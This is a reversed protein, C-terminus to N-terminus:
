QLNTILEAQISDKKIVKAFDEVSTNVPEIMFEPINFSLMLNAYFNTNKQPLIFPKRGKGNEEIYAIYPRTYSGDDRRSSFIIWRGNSSWSHYSEVDPSNVLSFDIEEGTQLNMAYLDSSQHWIHFTGYDGLTFLLYKGDPSVRPLTASKNIKSANFVTDPKGFTNTEEDFPMRLINYKINQYNKLSHASHEKKNSASPFYASAFYLMKGDPSWAPFTELSNSDNLIVSVKDTEADYLILGSALDLVEVKQTDKSHFLQGTKNVSYALIKKVPHWAPYVGGSILNGTKLNMKKLKGDVLIVTGGYMGRVHFQMNGTRYNQFAHCNICQSDEKKNLAQNNYIDKTEFNTMNRQEIKHSRYVVFSPAILRYAIYEDIPEPAIFNKITKYKTWKGSEKLYINISLEKGKNNNLLQHWRKINININKGKLIVPNGSESAISTIYKGAEKEIRFNLPAINYPITVDSYDPYIKINEDSETFTDPVSVACASLLILMIFCCGSIQIIRKM